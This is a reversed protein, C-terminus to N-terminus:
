WLLRWLAFLIVVVGVLFLGGSTLLVKGVEPDGIQNAFYLFGALCWLAGFWISRYAM